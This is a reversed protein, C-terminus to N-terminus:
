RGRRIHEHENKEKMKSQEQRITDLKERVAGSRAAIGDCLTLEKRITGIERTMESIEEKVESLKAEEHIRRSKSRLSKRQKVLEEMQTQLGEKLSFLQEVTDIRYHCLLRTEKSITNLRILDERLLIYVGESFLRGVKEMVHPCVFAVAGYMKLADTFRAGKSRGDFYDDPAELLSLVKEGKETIEDLCAVLEKLEWEGPKKTNKFMQKFLQEKTIGWTELFSETVKISSTGESTPIHIQCYLAMEEVKLHTIDQLMKFNAKTNVLMPCLWDKAEEFSKVARIDKEWFPPLKEVTSAIEKMAEGLAGGHRYFNFCPEMYVIPSITDEKKHILVGTLVGNNKLKKTIECEADQYEKPLYNKINKAVEEAFKEITDLRGTKQNM